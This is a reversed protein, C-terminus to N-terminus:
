PAPSAGETEYMAQDRLEVARDVLEDTPPPTAPELAFTPLVHEDRIMTPILVEAVVDMPPWQYWPARISQNTKLTKYGAKRVMIDYDGYWLFSFKAPSVGVEEDNVIVLAGPPDTEIRATREVCGGIALAGAALLGARSFRTMKPM